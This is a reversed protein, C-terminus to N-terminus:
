AEGGGSDGDGGGGESDGGGGGADNNASCERAAVASELAEKSQDAQVAPLVTGDPCGVVNWTRASTSSVPMNATLEFRRSGIKEGGQEVTENARYGYQFAHTGSSDFKLDQWGPLKSLDPFGKKEGITLETPIYSWGDLLPYVYQVKRFVDNKLVQPTHYYMVASDSIAKLKETAEADKSREIYHTLAPIAVAALIGIIAVVVMLEILTFGTKKDQNLIARM